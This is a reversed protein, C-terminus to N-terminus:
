SILVISQYRAKVVTRTYFFSLRVVFIILDPLPAIFYALFGYCLNLALGLRAFKTTQVMLMEVATRLNKRAYFEGINRHFPLKDDISNYLSSQNEYIVSVLKGIFM